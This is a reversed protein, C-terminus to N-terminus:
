KIWTPHDLLSQMVRVGRLQNSLPLHGRPATLSWNFENPYRTWINGKKWGIQSWLKEWNKDLSLWIERQVSFGFKGESHALWLQNIIQLDKAPFLRVETFYVWKRQVTAVGALECFKQLTLKDADLFDQKALLMQLPVYDIEIDSDLPVIGTPFHTQLFTATKALTAHYLAQYAKGSIAIGQYVPAEFLQTKEALLFEMLIEYGVEGLAALEDIAALQKKVTGSALLMQLTELSNTPLSGSSAPSTASNGM